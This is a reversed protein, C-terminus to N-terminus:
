SRLSLPSRNIPHKQQSKLRKALAIKIQSFTKEFHTIDNPRRVYRLACRGLFDLDSKFQQWEKFIGQEIAAHIEPDQYRLRMLASTQHQTTDPLSYIMQTIIQGAPHLINVQNKGDPLVLRWADYTKKDVAQKLPYLEFYLKSNPNSFDATNTRKPAWDLLLNKWQSQNHATQRRFDYISVDLRNGTTQQITHQLSQKQNQELPNNILINIDRQSGNDRQNSYYLDNDTYVRTLLHDISSGEHILAATAISGVLYYTTQDGLHNQVAEDLESILEFCSVEHSVGSMKM